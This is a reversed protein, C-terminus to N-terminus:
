KKALGGVLSAAFFAEMNKTDLADILQGAERYSLEALKLGSGKLKNKVRMCVDVAGAQALQDLLSKIRKIQADDCPADMSQREPENAETEPQSVEGRKAELKLALEQRWTEAQEVTLEMFGTVGRRALAANIAAAPVALDTLIRSIDHCCEVFAPDDTKSKAEAEPGAVPTEVPPSTVAPTPVSPAVMVPKDAPPNGILEKVDFGLEEGTYRGMVVPPHIARVADSVLRAWMMQMRSHPTAYKPKLLPQEGRHLKAIIESEKGQYVFPELLCENWTLGFEFHSDGIQMDISVADADRQVIQYTGGAEVFGALMADARRSLKGNPFVHYESALRLFRGTLAELAFVKGQFANGCGFIGSKHIADGVYEILEKVNAECNITAM